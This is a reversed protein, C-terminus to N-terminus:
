ELTEVDNLMYGKELLAQKIMPELQSNKIKELLETATLQKSSIFYKKEEIEKDELLVLDNNKLAFIFMKNESNNSFILEGSIQIQKVRIQPKISELLKILSEKLDLTYTKKNCQFEIEKDKLIQNTLQNINVDLTESGKIIKGLSLDNCFKVNFFRDMNFEDNLNLEKRKEELLLSYEESHKLSFGEFKKFLKKADTIVAEIEALTVSKPSNNDMGTFMRDYNKFEGAITTRWDREYIPGLKSQYMYIQAVEMIRKLNSLRNLYSVEGYFFSNSKKELETLLWSLALNNRESLHRDNDIYEKIETRIFNKKDEEEKKVDLILCENKEIEMKLENLVQSTRKNYESPLVYYDKHFPSINKNNIGEKEPKFWNTRNIEDDLLSYIYNEQEKKLFFLLSDLSEIRDIDLIKKKIDLSNLSEDNNLRNKIDSILIQKFQENNITLSIEKAINFVYASHNDLRLNLLERLKQLSKEKPHEEGQSWATIRSPYVDCRKAIESRRLGKNELEKIMEQANDKKYTSTQKTM